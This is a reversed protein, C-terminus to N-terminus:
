KIKAIPFRPDTYGTNVLRGHKIDLGFPEIDKFPWYGLDWLEAESLKDRITKSMAYYEEDSLYTNLRDLYKEPHALFDDIMEPIKETQDYRIRLLPIKKEVCYHNKSIDRKRNDFLMEYPKGCAWCSNESYYIFHQQGDFEIFGVDKIAFDVKLIHKRDRPRIIKETEFNVGKETLLKTITEEGISKAECKQCGHGHMHADPTIEFWGHEPCGIIVPTKCTVYEVRSYDYKNGHMKQARQIFKEKGVFTSAYRQKKACEPCGQGRLHGNPKQEFRGHIPCIITLPIKSGKYIAESYDYKGKGHVKEAKTIFESTTANLNACKPCGHGGNALHNVPKQEFRGHIPCIITVPTVSDIYEVESYDYKNGHKARAEAIFDDTTKKCPGACKPCGYKTLLHNRPLQEVNGHIPCKFKVKTEQNKYITDTYDFNDGWIRKAEAIFKETNYGKLSIHQSKNNAKCKYSCGRGSLHGAPTQEFIRGCNNCKIKVKTTNNVYNVLSYDYKGKGHVKEAKAIFEEKTDRKKALRSENACRDCGCFGTLHNSGRQYFVYDHKKCRIPLKQNGNKYEEILSYDFRDGWVNRADEIFEAVDKRTHPRQIKKM